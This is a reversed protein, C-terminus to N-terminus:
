DYNPSLLNSLTVSIRTTAPTRATTTNTIRTKRIFFFAGRYPSGTAIQKSTGRRSRATRQLVRLRSRLLVAWFRLCNHVTRVDWAREACNSAAILNSLARTYICFTSYRVTSFVGAVIRAMKPVAISPGGHGLDDLHWTTDLRFVLIARRM